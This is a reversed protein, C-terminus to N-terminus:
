RGTGTPTAPAPSTCDGIRRSRMETTARMGVGGPAQLNVTLTAQLTTETFSGDMALEMSGQGNPGPCTGRVRITGGGFVQDTFTCNSGGNQALMRRMEGVPDRTGEETLCQRQTQSQGIRARAMEAMQPAGPAEVSKITQITEWEGPQQRDAGRSCAATLAVAAIGAALLSVHKM